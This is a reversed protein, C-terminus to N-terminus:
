HHTIYIHVEFNPSNNNGVNKYVVRGLDDDANGHTYAEGLIPGDLLDNLGKADAQSVGYIVAEVLVAGLVDNNRDADLDYAGNMGNQQQFQLNDQTRLGSIDVMRITGSTGIQPAFPKDILGEALLIGDFNTYGSNPLTLNTGNGSALSLYKAYHEVVATKITQCSLVTQSMNANNISEFIKPVLLSALIAIIALVGIMEILTFAHRKRRLNGTIM